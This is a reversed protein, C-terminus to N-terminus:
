LNCRNNEQEMKASPILECLTMSYPPNFFHMGTYRCAVYEPLKAALKDISLGSTGSCLLAENKLYPIVKQNVENKIEYDEAVSEFILDSEAVVEKLSDYTVPILKEAIVGARVTELQM